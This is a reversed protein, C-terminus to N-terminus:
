DLFFLSTWKVEGEALRMQVMLQGSGIEAAPDKSRPKYSFAVTQTENVGYYCSITQRFLIFHSLM